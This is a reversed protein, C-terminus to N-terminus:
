EHLYSNKFKEPKFLLESYIAFAIWVVIDYMVLLLYFTIIYLLIVFLLCFCIITIIQM